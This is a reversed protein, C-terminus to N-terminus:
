FSGGLQKRFGPLWLPMKRWPSIYPQQTTAPQATRRYGTTAGRPPSALASLSPPTKSIASFKKYIDPQYMGSPTAVSPTTMRGKSYDITGGFVPIDGGGQVSPRTPVGFASKPWFGLASPTTVAPAAGRVGMGFAQQRGAESLPPRYVDFPEASAAAKPLIWKQTLDPGRSIAEVGEQKPFKWMEVGSPLRRLGGPRKMTRTVITQGTEPDISTGLPQKKWEDMLVDWYEAQTPKRYYSTAPTGSTSTVSKLKDFISPM